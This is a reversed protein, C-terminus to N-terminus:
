FGYKVRFWINSAKRFEGLFDNSSGTFINARLQFTLHDGHQYNLMSVIEFDGDDHYAIVAQPNLYEGPLYFTSFIVMLLTDVEDEHVGTQPQTMYVGQRDDEYDLIYTQFIHWMSEVGSPFIKPFLRITKDLALCYKLNDSRV